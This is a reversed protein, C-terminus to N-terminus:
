LPPHPLWPTVRLASFPITQWYRTLVPQPPLYCIVPISLSAAGSFHWSTCFLPRPNLSHSLCKEDWGKGALHRLLDAQASPPCFVYM